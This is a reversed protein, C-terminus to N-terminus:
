CSKKTGWWAGFELCEGNRLGDEQFFSATMERYPKNFDEGPLDRTENWYPELSDMFQKVQLRAQYRLALDNESLPSSQDLENKASVSNKRKLESGDSTPSSDKGSGSEWWIEDLPLAYRASHNNVLCDEMSFLMGVTSCPIPSLARKALIKSVRNNYFQVHHNQPQSEFQTSTTITYASCPTRPAKTQSISRITLDTCQVEITGGEGLVRLCEALMDSQASTSPIASSVDRVFIYDFEGDQFPFPIHLCNHRVFTFDVDTMPAYVPVVDMGVFKVDARGRAAFEDHMSAIWIGTGCGIDLVRSPIKRPDSFDAMHYGGFVEKFLHHKLGQRTLEPIDCPLIYVCAEDSHFRRGNIFRFPSSKTNGVPTSFVSTKRAGTPSGLPSEM